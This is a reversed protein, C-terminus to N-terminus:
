SRLEAQFKAKVAELGKKCIASIEEDSLTKEAGQLLLRFALSKKEESMVYLDLCKLELLEAGLAQKLTKEIDSEKVDAAVVFAFDREVVPLRKSPTVKARGKPFVEDGAVMRESVTLLDKLVCIEGLVAGLQLGTPLNLLEGKHAPHLEGVYGVIGGPFKGPLSILASRAPHLLALPIWPAALQIEAVNVDLLSIFQASNMRPELQAAHKLFEEAIGKADFFDVPAKREANKKDSSWHDEQRQGLLAWAAHFNELTGTQRDQNLTPDAVFVSGSDFFSGRLQNMGAHRQLVKILGFSLNPRMYLWDQSLPNKLQVVKAQPVFAREAESIFAYPMMETLGCDLLRRRLTRLKKYLSTTAGETAHGQVPYRTPIQEFGTLRAAEEILDIERALDLRHTPIEVRLVNSSKLQAEIDVSKFSAMLTEPSIDIGVVEKFNRMDFNLSSKNLLKEAKESKIEIFAGRRRAGCFQKALLAFRGAARAVGVADVGREFRHSAESHIKHRQSMGRVVDPEFLASELLVRKTKESVGSDMGGMVGALALVKELDAIVLDESSLVRDVGDLTKLKEGNKAFRVILRSGTIKDADFAHLPQGLEMLVYNTIDVISNHSKIGLTELMRRIPEPSPRNEVNEFLQGTYLACAKPAQVEVSVLPVDSSDAPNLIEFQPLQGKVGVLRGVERAMGLHSLCDARDPTLEVEWIEDHMGLAKVLSQGLPATDPLHLIGQSEESLGLEKESCLMGFSTVGRIASEKIKFNGPLECGVPALAVKVGEKVNPAGCVIQLLKEGTFVQCVNLRDAQPHKEFSQIQAVIVGEIGEGLKKVGGIEIGALPLKARLIQSRIPLGHELKPFFDSLWKLSIKM